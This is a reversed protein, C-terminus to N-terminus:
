RVLTDSNKNTVNIIFFLLLEICVVLVAMDMLGTAYFYHAEDSGRECHNQNRQIERVIGESLLGKNLM